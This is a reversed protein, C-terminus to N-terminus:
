LNHLHTFCKYFKYIDFFRWWVMYVRIFIYSFCVLTIFELGDLAPVVISECPEIPSRLSSRNNQNEVFRISSTQTESKQDDSSSSLSSFSSRRNSNASKKDAIPSSNEAPLKPKFSDIKPSSKPKSRNKPRHRAKTPM